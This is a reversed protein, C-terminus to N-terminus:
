ARLCGRYYLVLAERCLLQRTPPDFMIRSGGDPAIWAAPADLALYTSLTRQYARRQPSSRADLLFTSMLVLYPLLKINSERGGGKSDAFSCPAPTLPPYVVM